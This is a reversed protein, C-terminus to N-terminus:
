AEKYVPKNKCKLPTPFCWHKGHGIPLATFNQGNSIISKPDLNRSRAVWSWFAVAEGQFPALRQFKRLEIPNLQHKERM